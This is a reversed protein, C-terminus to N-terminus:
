RLSVGADRAIKLVRERATKAAHDPNEHCTYLEVTVWDNYGVDQLAELV